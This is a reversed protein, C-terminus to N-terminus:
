DEFIGTLKTANILKESCYIPNKRLFDVLSTKGHQSHDWYKDKFENPLVDNYDASLSNLKKLQDFYAFSTLKNTDISLSKLNKLHTFHSLSDFNNKNVTLSELNPLDVEFTSMHNSSIILSKLKPLKTLAKLDKLVNQHVHLSELNQFAEIGDLSTLKMGSINLGTDNLSNRLKKGFNAPQGIDNELLFNVDTFKVSALFEQLKSKKRRPM